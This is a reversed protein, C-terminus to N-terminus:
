FQDTKDSEPSPPCLGYEAIKAKVQELPIKLLRSTKELDWHTQELVANLHDKESERLSKIKM